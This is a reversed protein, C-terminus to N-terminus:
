RGLKAVKLTYITVLIVGIAGSLRLLTLLLINFFINGFDFLSSVYVYTILLVNFLWIYLIFTSLLPVRSTVVRNKFLHLIIGIGGTAVFIIGVGGMFFYDIVFGLIISAVSLYLLPKNM